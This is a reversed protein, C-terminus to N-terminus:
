DARVLRTEVTSPLMFFLRIHRWMMERSDLKLVTCEGIWEHNEDYLTLRNPASVKYFGNRISLTAAEDDYSSMDYPRLEYRGDREFTYTYITHPNNSDYVTNWKGVLQLVDFSIDKKCGTLAIAVVMTAFIFAKKM